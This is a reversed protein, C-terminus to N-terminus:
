WLFRVAEELEWNFLHNIHKHVSNVGLKKISAEFYSKFHILLGSNSSINIQDELQKRWLWFFILHSSTHPQPPSRTTKPTFQHSPFVATIRNKEADGGKDEAWLVKRVTGLHPIVRNFGRELGRFNKM